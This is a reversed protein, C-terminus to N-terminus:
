KVAAWALWVLLLSLPYELLTGTSIPGAVRTKVVPWLPETGSPTLSDLLVHSAAGLFAASAALSPALVLYPAVAWGGCAALVAFLLTHTVGRHGFLGHIAWSAVPVRSGLSSRPEDIDPLLAAFWGVAAALPKAGPPAVLAGIVAGAAAHTVGKM